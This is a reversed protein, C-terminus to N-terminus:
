NLNLITVSSNGEAEAKASSEIFGIGNSKGAVFNIMETSSSKKKPGVGAGSLEKKVWMLEFKPPTMGVVEAFFSKAASSDGKLFAGTMNKGAVKKSNGIFFSKVDSKSASSVGTGSNVIVVYDAAFAGFSFFLVFLSTILKFYM